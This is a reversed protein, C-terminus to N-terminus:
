RYKILSFRTITTMKTHDFITRSCDNNSQTRCDTPNVGIQNGHLLFFHPDSSNTLPENNFTWIGNYRTCTRTPIVQVSRLQDSSWTLGATAQVQVRWQTDMLTLIWRKDPVQSGVRFTVEFTRVVSFYVRTGNPFSVRWSIWKRLLKTMSGTARNARVEGFEAREIEARRNKVDSEVSTKAGSVMEGFGWAVGEVRAM